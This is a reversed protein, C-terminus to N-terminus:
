EFGDRFLLDSAFRQGFVGDLHGDQNLSTWVIV